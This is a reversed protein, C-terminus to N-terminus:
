GAPQKNFTVALRSSPSVRGRECRVPSTVNSAHRLLSPRCAISRTRKATETRRPDIVIVKAGRRTAAELRYMDLPPSDTAPNAGWVLLMESNEIDAYMNSLMRGLTVHPAIM